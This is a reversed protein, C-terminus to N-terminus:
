DRDLLRGLIYGIGVAAAVSMLPNRTIAQEADSVYERTQSQAQDAYDRLLAAGEEGRAMALERLTDTLNGFDRRLSDMDERLRAMDRESHVAAAEARAEAAESGLDEALESQADPPGDPPLDESSTSSFGPNFRDAM